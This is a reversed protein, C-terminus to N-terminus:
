DEAADTSTGCVSGGDVNPLPMCRGDLGGQNCSVCPAECASDCCVGDVCFGSACEDNVSCLMDSSHFCSGKVCPRGGECQADSTCANFCSGIAPNCVYPGCTMEPGTVCAGFGDCVAAATFVGDSCSGAACTTGRPYLDCSGRGDCLGTQGCTSPVSALCDNPERPAVGSPVYACEGLSFPVACTKCRETCASSCCVGDACFGSACQDANTCPDALRKPPTDPGREATADAAVAPVDDATDAAVDAGADGISDAFGRADSSGGDAGALRLSARGCGTAAIAVLLFAIGCYRAPSGVLRSFLWPAALTRAQVYSGAQKEGHWM